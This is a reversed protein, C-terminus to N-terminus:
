HDSPSGRTYIFSITDLHNQHFGGPFCVQHMFLASTPSPNLHWSAALHQWRVGLTSRRLRGLRVHWTHCTGAALKECHFPCEPNSHFSAAWVCAGGVRATFFDAKSHAPRSRDHCIATSMLPKLLLQLEVQTRPPTAAARCGSRPALAPFFGSRPATLHAHICFGPFPSKLSVASVM